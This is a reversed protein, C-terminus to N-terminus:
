LVLFPSWVNRSNPVVPYGSARVVDDNTFPENHAWDNRVKRLESAYAGAAPPLAFPYGLNGLRETLVRLQTQVDSARYMKIGRGALEDKRALVM